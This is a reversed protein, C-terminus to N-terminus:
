VVTVEAATCIDNHARHFGPSTLRTPSNSRFQRRYLRHLHQKNSQPNWSKRNGKRYSRCSRYLRSTSLSTEPAIKRLGGSTKLRPTALVLVLTPISNNDFVISHRHM